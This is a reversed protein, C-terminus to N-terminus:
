AGKSSQLKEVYALLIEAILDRLPIDKEYAVERLVRHTDPPVIAQVNRGIHTVKENM